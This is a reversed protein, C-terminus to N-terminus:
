PAKDRRQGAVSSRTASRRYSSGLRDAAPRPASGPTASNGSATRAGSDLTRYRNRLVDSREERRLTTEVSDVIRESRSRTYAAPEATRNGALLVSRSSLALDPFQPFPQPWGRAFAVKALVWIMGFQVLAFALTIAFLEMPASPTAYGLSRVRLADALWPEIIALEAALVVTVGISGVMALVLGRLWGSFLGRTADFLLLGAALPALALLLGAVLRLLALSGIIGSLWVLRAWGFASEDELAAGAFTGGPAEGDIFAGINRGTGVETLRVMANDAGQLRESFGAGTGPLGPSSLSTAIEAPGILVLNYIVTRFAPWSFALSLVIGIKLIDFILDRGSPVTGFLLRIGFLAIFLTLLGTIVISATSGPEGLAQYGYSGLLQAQCDLHDLVRALFRDGTIIAPCAM